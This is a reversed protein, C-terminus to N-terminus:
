KTHYSIFCDVHLPVDCKVCETTAKKSCKRCNLQKKKSTRTDIPLSAVYHELGDFRSDAKSFSSPRGRCTTVRKSSELIATAVRRRFSLHDLIGGDKRYLVWANQEAADIIHAIIPFYWKKGRISTRYLSINQDARDIGGMHKNYSQILHPQSVQIKKKTQRSFRGVQHLPHVTDFNTAVSVVSNDHWRVISIGANNDSLYEFVGRKEKKLVEPPSMNCSKDIRNGRITGTAEIGRTKLDILLDISTFLNDFFLRYPVRPLLRDAYTMIVGYGMGKDEYKSSCTGAGQYPEMWILYGNSTGGCWFKYGFRIPKGSFM